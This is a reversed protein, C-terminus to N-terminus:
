SQSCPEDFASASGTPVTQTTSPATVPYAAALGPWGSGDDLGFKVGVVAIAIGALAAVAAQIRKQVPVLLLM